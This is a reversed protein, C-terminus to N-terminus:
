CTARSLTYTLCVPGVNPGHVVREHLVFGSQVIPAFVKVMDSSVAPRFPKGSVRTSLVTENALNGAEGRIARTRVIIQRCM